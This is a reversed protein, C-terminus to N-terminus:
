ILSVIIINVFYKGNDMTWILEENQRIAHEYRGKMMWENDEYTYVWDNNGSMIETSTM